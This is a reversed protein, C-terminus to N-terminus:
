LVPKLPQGTSTEIKANGVFTGSIGGLTISSSSSTFELARAAGNWIGSLSGNITKEGNLATSKCGYVGFVILSGGEKASFKVATQGGVETIEGTLSVMQLSSSVECGSGTPSTVSCGGLTFKPESVSATGASGAHNEVSGGASLSSCSITMSTGIPLTLAFGTLGSMTFGTPSTLKTWAYEGEVGMKTCASDTFQPEGNEKQCAYWAAPTATVLGTPSSSAQTSGGENTATVKVV